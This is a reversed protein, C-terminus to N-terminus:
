ERLFKLLRGDPLQVLYLGSQLSTIDVKTNTTGKLLPKGSLSLIKFVGGTSSRVELYRGSPNPFILAEAEDESSSLPCIVEQTQTSTNGTADRYMWTITTTSTIPFTADTTATIIGDDCNDTATPATLDAMTAVPCEGTLTPLDSNDPMPAETDGIIIEQTQTTTNDADDTYTWTFTTSATIPPSANTAATITGDCNDTANPANLSTIQSCDEITPLGAIMPIPAMTDDITVQQTQTSTNSAGDTYTWTITTDSMIPFNAINNTVTVSGTCNDTAAPTTLESEGLPCQRMIESLDNSPDPSPAINDAITVEQTQTSTNGAADTYTWMITTSATIPPTVTTTAMIEGDCNDSATPITVDTAPISCASTLTTLDNDPNPVPKMTDRIIVEQTQTATNGTLDTYTWTITTTSTIPFNTINNTVTVTGGQNDTATPVPLDERRLNCQETIADLSQASPMPATMDDNITINFTNDTSSPDAGGGVNTMRGELDFGNTTDDDPGLALTLTEPGGREATNDAAATLILTATQAGAGSFRVVPAATTENVLTIGTNLADGTKAALSWDATTINTGSIILPVDIIENPISVLARGLTVTFEVTEGEEISGISGTRALTIITPDDDRIAVTTTLNIEVVGEPRANDPDDKFTLTVVEDPEDTANDTERLLFFSASARVNKLIVDDYCDNTLTIQSFGRTVTFNPSTFSSSFCVRFPVSQSQIM